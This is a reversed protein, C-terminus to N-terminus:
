AGHPGFIDRVMALRKGDTGAHIYRQTTREDAHGMLEAIESTPVRPDAALTSGYTHRLAHFGYNPKYSVQTIPEGKRPGKSYHQGTPVEVRTGHGIAALWPAWVRTTWNKYHTTTGATSPFILDAAGRGAILPELAERLHPPMPVPRPVKGKPFHRITGDREAVQFVNLYDGDIAVVPLGFVESWRLGAFLGLMAPVRLADPAGTLLQDQETLTLTRIPHKDETLLAVGVTPNGYLLRGHRDVADRYLRRLLSLRANITPKGIKAAKCANLWDRIDQRDLVGMHRDALVGVKPLPIRLGNLAARYKNLTATTLEGDRATLYNRGYDSVTPGLPMPPDLPARAADPAPPKTAGSTNPTTGYLRALAADEETKAWAEAQWEYDHTKRVKKKTRPDLYGGRWRTDGNALTIPEPTFPM